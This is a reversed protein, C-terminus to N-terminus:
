SGNKVLRIKRPSGSARGYTSNPGASKMWDIGQADVAPIDKSNDPSAQVTNDTDPSIQLSFSDQPTICIADQSWAYIANGDNYKLQAMMPSQGDPCTKVQSITKQMYKSSGIVIMYTGQAPFDKKIKDDLQSGSYKLADSDYVEAKNVEGIWYIFDNFIYLQKGYMQPSFFNINLVDSVSGNGCDYSLSGASKCSNVGVGLFRNQSSDDKVGIFTAQIATIQLFM